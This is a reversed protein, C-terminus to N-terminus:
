PNSIVFAVQSTPYPNSISSFPRLRGYMALIFLISDQCLSLGKKKMFFSELPEECAGAYCRSMQTFTKEGLMCVRIAKKSQDDLM